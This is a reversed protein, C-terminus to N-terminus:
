VDGVVPDDRELLPHGVGVIRHDPHQALEAAGLLSREIFIWSYWPLAMRFAKPTGTGFPSTASVGASARAMAWRSPPRVTTLAWTCAPPRPLAPPTFSASSGAAAWAAALGIRPMISFVGCVGGAPM